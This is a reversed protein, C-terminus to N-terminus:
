KECTHLFAIKWDAHTPPPPEPVLKNLDNQQVYDELVAFKAQEWSYACSGVDANLTCQLCPM